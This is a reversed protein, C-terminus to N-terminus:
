IVSFSVLRQESDVRDLRLSLVDGPQKGRVEVRAIIAPDDIQVKVGGRQDIDIVAGTFQQGIRGMMSVAEVLDVVERDIKSTRAEAADMVKPLREFAEAVATPVSRGASIAVVTALVYKDALRRLPATAHAYTSAIAAHWPAVGPTFPAYSAGGSARRVSLLFAAAKPDDTSLSRAFRDLPTDRAWRLGLCHAAHRLGKVERADPEEMVRFLGVGASQM